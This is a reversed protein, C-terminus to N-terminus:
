SARDLFMWVQFSQLSVTVLSSAKRFLPKKTSVLFRCCSACCCLGPTLGAVIMRVKALILLLRTVHGVYCRILSFSSWENCPWVAFDKCIETRLKKSSPREGSVECFVLGLPVKFSGNPHKPRACKSPDLTYFKGSSFIWLSQYQLAHHAFVFSVSFMGTSTENCLEPVGIQM